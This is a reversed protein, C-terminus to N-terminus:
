GRSRRVILARHIEIGRDDSKEVSIGLMDVVERTRAPNMRPGRTRM